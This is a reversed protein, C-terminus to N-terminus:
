EPFARGSENYSPIDDEHISLIIHSFSCFKSVQLSNKFYDRIMDLNPCLEVSSDQKM